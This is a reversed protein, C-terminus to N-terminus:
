DAFDGTEVKGSFLLGFEVNVYVKPAFDVEV